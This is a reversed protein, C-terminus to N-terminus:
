KLRGRLADLLFDTLILCYSIVFTHSLMKALRGDTAFALFVPNKRFFSHTECLTRHLNRIRSIKRFVELRYDALRRQENERFQVHKFYPLNREINEALLLRDQLSIGRGTLGSNMIRYNYLPKDLVCVSHVHRCIDMTFIEDERFVLGKVFRINNDRIISARIFKAVTWGFIDGISGYKLDFLVQEVCDRTGAFASYSCRRSVQGNAFIEKLPFFIIDAKNKNDALTKFYDPEVWDDADVFSIWEGRSQEIGFNRAASAGSNDQHFIRICNDKRAYEDCIEESGDSSGDDVLIIEIDQDAQVLLSDVCQRLYPAVNYVPIIVSLFLKM